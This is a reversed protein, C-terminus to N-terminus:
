TRPVITRYVALPTIQRTSEDSAGTLGGFLRMAGLGEREVVDLLSTGQPAFFAESSPVNCQALMHWEGGMRYGHRAGLRASSEVFNAPEAVGTAVTEGDQLVRMRITQAGLADIIGVIALASQKSIGLDAPPPAGSRNRRRVAARTDAPPPGPANLAGFHRSLDPM